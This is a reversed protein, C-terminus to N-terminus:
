SSLTIEMTHSYKHRSGGKRKGSRTFFAAESFDDKMLLVFDNFNTSWVSLIWLWLNTLMISQFYRFNLRQHCCCKLHIQNKGAARHCDSTLIKETQLLLSSIKYHYQLLYLPITNNILCNFLKISQNRVKRVKTGTFIGLVEFDCLFRVSCFSVFFM